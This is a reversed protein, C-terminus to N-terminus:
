HKIFKSSWGDNSKILYSGVPLEKIPIVTKEGKVEIQGVEQGSLNHIKVYGDTKGSLTLSTTAPNPYVIPAPATNMKIVRINSYEVKGEFDVIKLRYYSRGKLPSSDTMSYSRATNVTGAGKIRGMANWNRADASREVDFYDNDTESATAWELKVAGNASKADFSILSVALAECVVEEGIDISWNKTNRLTELAAVAPSGYTMGQAGFTINDPTATNAAWAQLTLTMNVCDMGSDFLLSTLNAGPSITWETLPQNFAAASYFAGLMNTVGSVNWENVPQNFSQAGYFMASITTTQSLDWNNLPQNFDRAGVFMYSMDTVQSVDWSNLPQNFNNTVGFMFSMNTVKSVDWSGIPQNFATAQRFMHVTSTVQGVDWNGIPQNFTIANSFMESM